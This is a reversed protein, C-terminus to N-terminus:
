RHWEAIRKMGLLVNVLLWMLGSRANDSASFKHNINERLSNLKGTFVYWPKPDNLQISETVPSRYPHVSFSANHNCCGLRSEILIRQIYAWVSVKQFHLIERWQNVKLIKTRVLSQVLARPSSLMSPIGSIGRWADELVRRLGTQTREVM